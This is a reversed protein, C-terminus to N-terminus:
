WWTVYLIKIRKVDITSLEVRQGIAVLADPIPTITDMGNISFATNGYHMVSSYDYPTNLNNTNEKNFNSQMAPDINQWNIRVYNDRDSRTHEHYFGLAHNLEHEVIGHYVCGNRNLSLVQAGGTKGVASYCGDRSKISIYDPEVTRPVFRICTKKRFSAMANKIVDKDYSANNITIIRSTIDVHQPETTPLAQSLGLLLAMIFRARRRVHM